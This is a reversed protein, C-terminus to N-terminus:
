PYVVHVRLHWATSDQVPEWRFIAGGLSTVVDHLMYGIRTGQGDGGAALDNAATTEVNFAELINPRLVGALLLGEAILAGTSRPPMKTNKHVGDISVIGLVPKVLISAGGKGGPAALGFDFYLRNPDSPNVRVIVRPGSSGSATPM